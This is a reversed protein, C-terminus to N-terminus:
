FYPDQVWGHKQGIKYLAWYIVCLAIVCDRLERCCYPM